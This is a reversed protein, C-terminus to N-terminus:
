AHATLKKLAIGLENLNGYDQICLGGIQPIVDKYFENAMRICDKMEEEREQGAYRQNRMDRLKVHAMNCEEGLDAVRKNLREIEAEAAQINYNM